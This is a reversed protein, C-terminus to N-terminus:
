YVCLGLKANPQDQHHGLVEADLAPNKNKVDSSHNKGRQGGLFNPQM